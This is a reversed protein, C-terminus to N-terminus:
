TAPVGVPQAGADLVDAAGGAEHQAQAGSGVAGRARGGRRAAPRPVGRVPRRAGGDGVGHGRQAVTGGGRLRRAEVVDLDVLGGVLHRELREGHRAAGAEIAPGLWRARQGEVDEVGVLRVRRAVGRRRQVPQHAHPAADVDAGGVVPAEVGDAVADDARHRRVGPPAHHREGGLVAQALQRAVRGIAGHVGVGRRLRRPRRGERGLRQRRGHVVEGRLPRSDEENVSPVVSQMPRSSYRSRSFVAM